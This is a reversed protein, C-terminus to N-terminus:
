QGAERARRRELIGRRMDVTINPLLELVTEDDLYKAEMLVAEVQERRVLDYLQGLFHRQDDAYSGTGLGMGFHWDSTHILKM